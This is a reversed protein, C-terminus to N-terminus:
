SPSPATAENRTAELRARADTAGPFDPDIQLAREFAAGAEDTRDLALLALGMHYHHLPPASRRNAAALELAYRFQQLAAENLGKRLYVYGVAAVVKPDRARLQQVHEALELARKLDVGEDALLMALEAQAGLMDDNAAVAKEFMEKARVRDGTYAYIRGLLQQAGPLLVGATDAEALSDAADALTERRQYLSFLLDVAGDLTPDAELARLADQEAADFANFRSYVNARLLWVAASARGTAIAADLRSVAGTRKAAVDMWTLAELLGLHAPSARLAQELYAYSRDPRQFKERSAYETAAEPTPPGTDLLTELMERGRITSGTEYLSTALRVKERPRLSARRETIARYTAIALDWEEAAHHVEAKLRLLDVPPDSDPLAREIAAGADPLNGRALESRALLRQIIPGDEDDALARLTEVAEDYRREAIAIRADTRRSVPHDPHSDLMKVYTARANSVKKRQIQIRAIQEWFEPADLGRDIQARLHKLALTTRNKGILYVAYTLHAAVDEPRKAILTELVNEGSGGRNEEIAALRSWAGMHDPAFEVVKLLTWNLFQLNRTTTAYEFATLAVFLEHDDRPRQRALEFADHFGSIADAEGNPMSGYVRARDVRARVSGGSKEDAKTFAEIAAQADRKSFPRKRKKRELIRARYAKGLQFWAKWDERDLGTARRASTLASGSDNRILDIDSKLIYAKASRPDAKLVERLLNRAKTLDRTMMIRIARNAADIRAPDLRFADRFYTAATPDDDLDLQEALKQNVDANGPDLRLASRYEIIAEEVRDEAAFSAADALHQALRQEPTSCAVFALAAIAGV